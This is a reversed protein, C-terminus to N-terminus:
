DSRRERAYILLVTLIVAGYVMQRGGAGMRLTVLVSNLVTLVIAGAMAGLYRGNGGALSVGGVVAAAISPLVYISGVDLYPTQTYGLILIGALAAMMGCISYALMRAIRTRVGSLRATLDNEGIGYLVYGAVSYRLIIEACVAIIVWVVIMISVIGIRGSGIRVIIEAASGTPQGNTYVLAYGAVVSSMALTMVLSPVGFFSVGIGNITGVIFGALLSLVIAGVISGNGGDMTAASIVVSLSVVSGVSLDLGEKGSLIVITQGLAVIGLFSSVSIVNSLQRFSIFSPSAIGGVIFLLGAIAFAMAPRNAGLRRVLSLAGVSRAM